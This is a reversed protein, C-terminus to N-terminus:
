HFPSLAKGLVSAASLVPCVHHTYRRAQVDTGASESDVGEQGQVCPGLGGSRNRTAEDVQTRGKGPAGHCTRFVCIGGAPLVPSMSHGGRRLEQPQLPLSRLLTGPPRPYQPRVAKSPARSGTAALSPVTRTGRGQVPPARRGRHPDVSHNFHALGPFAAPTVGDRLSWGVGRSSREHHVAHAQAGRQGGFARSFHPSAWVWIGFVGM